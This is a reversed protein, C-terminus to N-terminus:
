KTDEGLSAPETSVVDEVAEDSADAPEESVEDAFVFEEEDDRAKRNVAAKLITIETGPALEIIMQAEGVHTVTGFIGSHLLVRDGAQLAAVAEQQEKVRKAQPRMVFFYMVAFLAIFPLIFEM